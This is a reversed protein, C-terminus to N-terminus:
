ERFRMGQNERLQRFTHLLFQRRRGRPLLAASARLTAFGSRQTAVWVKRDPSVQTAAGTSASSAILPNASIRNIPISSFTIGGSFHHVFFGVKRLARLLERPKAVPLRKTM